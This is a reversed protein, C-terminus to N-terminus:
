ASIAQSRQFYFEVAIFAFPCIAALFFALWKIVPWGQQHSVSLSLLMYVLFLAGHTIGLSFVYDRSILDLTVSLIVLYSVGEAISIARFAKVLAM